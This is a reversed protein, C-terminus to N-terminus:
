NKPLLFRNLLGDLEEYSTYAIEIRGKGKRDIVNVKAGFTRQLKEELAKIEPSNNKPSSASTKSETSAARAARETERVSWAKAIAERGLSVMKAPTSAQLLARGHGESLQGEVVMARVESPLGLLRLSNAVTSRDRGIRTALETQSYGNNDILHQLAEAEEIPNLDQRQVNEVLALEYAEASDVERIVVPIEKLGAIQAARWRREGAILEYGDGNDRKRVVPPQIIGQEKISDALGQLAEEEIRQRPQDARPHIREIPCTM